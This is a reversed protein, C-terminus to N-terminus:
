TLWVLPVHRIRLEPHSRFYLNLVLEGLHSCVRPHRTQLVPWGILQEEVDALVSFCWAAYADFLEHRAILMNYNYLMQGDFVQEAIASEGRVEMVTRLAEVARPANYRAYQMSTDPWCVFPVPLLVDVRGAALDAWDEAAPALYRRYHALGKMRATRNKWGWYLVTLEDYNRNKGSISVGDDDRFDVDIAPDLAAGAQVRLTGAPHSAGAALPKDFFSVAAYVEAGSPLPLAPVDEARSFDLTGGLLARMWSFKRADDAALVHFFGARVLIGRIEEHLYAPTAIVFLAEGDRAPSLEALTVVPLGDIQEPNDGRETVVYGCVEAGQKQLSRCIGYATTQAGYIWVKRDGIM